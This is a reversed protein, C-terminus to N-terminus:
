INGSLCVRISEQKDYSKEFFIITLKLWAIFELTYIRVCTLILFRM